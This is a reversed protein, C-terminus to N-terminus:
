NFTSVVYIFVLGLFMMWVGLYSLAYSLIREKHYLAYSILYDIFFAALFVVALSIIGLGTGFADVENNLNLHIIINDGLPYIKFFFVILIIIWFVIGSIFPITIQRDKFFSKLHESM